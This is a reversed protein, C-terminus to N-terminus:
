FRVGWDLVVGVKEGTAFIPRVPLFVALLIEVCMALADSLRKGGVSLQCVGVWVRAHLGVTVVVESVFVQRYGVPEGGSAELQQDEVMVIPFLLEALVCGFGILVFDVVVGSKVM